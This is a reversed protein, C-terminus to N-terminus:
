MGFLRRLLSPYRGRLIVPVVVNHRAHGELPVLEVSPLGAIHEAYARDKAAESGYVYMVRPGSSGAALLPRLAVAYDPSAAALDLYLSGRPRLPANFDATLNTPGALGLAAEAGLNVGYHFAAFSGASNGYTYIKRAGLDAILRKLSLITSPRDTGLSPYGIGGALKRVDRFYIVSAPLRGLWRHALSVPMGVRKGHGCFVLLVADSDPRRVIQVDSGSEPPLEILPALEDPVVDFLDTMTKAYELDPYAERLRKLALEAPGRLGRDLLDECARVWVDPAREGVRLATRTCFAREIEAAVAAVHANVAAPTQADPPPAPM